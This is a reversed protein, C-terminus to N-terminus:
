HLELGADKVAAQLWQDYAEIENGFEVFVQDNQDMNLRFALTRLTEAIATYFAYKLTQQTGETYQPYWPKGAIAQSM